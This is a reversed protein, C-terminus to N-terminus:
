PSFALFIPLSLSVFIFLSVPVSPPYSVSFSLFFSFSFPLFVPNLIQTSSSLRRCEPTSTAAAAWFNACFTVAGETVAWVVTELIIQLKRPQIQNPKVEQTASQGNLREVMFLSLWAAFIQWSFSVAWEKFEGNEEDKGM